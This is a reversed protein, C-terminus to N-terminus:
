VGKVRTEDGTTRVNYINGGAIMNSKQKLMEGMETLQQQLHLNMEEWDAMDDNLEDLTMHISILENELEKHKM